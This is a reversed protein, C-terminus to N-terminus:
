LWLAAEDLVVDKVLVFEGVGVSLVQLIQPCQGSIFSAIDELIEVLFTGEDLKHLSENIRFFHIGVNGTVEATVHSFAEFLGHETRTWALGIGQPEHVIYYLLCFIFPAVEIEFLEPM